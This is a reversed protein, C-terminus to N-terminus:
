LRVWRKRDDDFKWHELKEIEYNHIKVDSVSVSTYHDNIKDIYFENDYRHLKKAENIAKDYDTDMVYTKSTTARQKRVAM